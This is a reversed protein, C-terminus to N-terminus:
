IPNPEGVIDLGKNSEVEFKEIFKPKEELFLVTAAV